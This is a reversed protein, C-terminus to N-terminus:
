VIKEGWKQSNFVELFRVEKRSNPIEKKPSIFFTKYLRNPCWTKFIV